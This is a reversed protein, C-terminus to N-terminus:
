IYSHIGKDEDRKGLNKRAHRTKGCVFLLLLTNRTCHLLVCTKKNLLSLSLSLAWTFKLSLCVCFFFFVWVCAHVILYGLFFCHLLLIYLTTIYFTPCTTIFLTFSSSFFLWHSKQSTQSSLTHTHLWTDIYFQLINNFTYGYLVFISSYVYHLSFFPFFSHLPIKNAPFFSFAFSDTYHFFSPVRCLTSSTKQYCSFINTNKQRKKRKKTEARKGKKRRSTLIIALCPM